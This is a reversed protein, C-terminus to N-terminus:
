GNTGEVLARSIDSEPEGLCWAEPASSCYLGIWASFSEAATIQSGKAVPDDHGARNAMFDGKGNWHL